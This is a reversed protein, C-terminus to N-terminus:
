QIERLIKKLKTINKEIRDTSIPKRETNEIKNIFVEIIKCIDSDFSLLDVNEGMQKKIFTLKNKYHPHKDCLLIIQPLGMVSSILSAHYRMNIILSISELMNLAESLTKPYQAVKINCIGFIRLQDLVNNYFKLDVHLFDYMPLLVIEIDKDFAVLEKILDILKAKYDDMCFWTIGIVKKNGPREAHNWELWSGNALAIDDIIQIKESRIGANELTKLSDIDRLSFYDSYCITEKLDNIYQTNYLEGNSSLGFLYAKKKKQVFYLPLKVVITSLSLFGNNKKEYTKDDLLAGGGIILVDFFSALFSFDSYTRCYHIVDVDGLQYSDYSDNEALMITLHVNSKANLFDIITQLMIEDGFNYAGYFGVLLVNKKGEKKSNLLSTMEYNFFDNISLRDNLLDAYHHLNNSVTNINENHECCNRKYEQGNEEVSELIKNLSEGTQSLSGQITELKSVLDSLPGQIADLKNSLNSDTESLQTLSNPLDDRVYKLTRKLEKYKKFLNM